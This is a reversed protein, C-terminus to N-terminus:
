SPWQLSETIPGSQFREVVDYLDNVDSPRSDRIKRISPQYSAVAPDIMMLPKDPDQNAMCKSVVM